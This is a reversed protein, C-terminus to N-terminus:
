ILLNNEKKILDDVENLKAKNSLTTLDTELDDVLIGNIMPEDALENDFPELGQRARAENISIIGAMVDSRDLNREAHRDSYDSKKIRFVVDNIGLLPLLKLNVMEEFAVEMPRITNEYFDRKIVGANSRQVGKTYGLLFPDVGFATSIKEINFKRHELFQMEKQSPSITKIDKLHPIVGAKFKNKVGKYQREMAEKLKASQEQTLAEDLILFHSPVANNEYFYYGAKQAAIDTKAEFVISEIPSCGIIPNYTSYDYVTHIIEDVSFEVANSGMIQQYYGIKNGYKDAVIKMTRPDVVNIRFVRGKNSDRELHMYVNGAVDRDRVWLDSFVSFPKDSNDLISRLYIASEGESIEGENGKKLIEYGEKAFTDQKRRIAQRVEVVDNFIQYLTDIGIRVNSGLSNISRYSGYSQAVKQAIANKTGVHINTLPIKFLM